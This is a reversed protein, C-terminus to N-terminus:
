QFHSASVNSTYRYAVCRVHYCSRSLVAPQVHVHYADHDMAMYYEPDKTDTTLMHVNRQIYKM